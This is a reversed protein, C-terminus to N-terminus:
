VDNFSVIHVQPIYEGFTCICSAITIVVLVPNKYLPGEFHHIHKNTVLGAGSEQAKEINDSFTMALVCPLLMIGGLVLFSKRWGLAVVLSHLIPGFM